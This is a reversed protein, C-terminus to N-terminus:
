HRRGKRSSCIVSGYLLADRLEREAHLWDDLDLGHNGGRALYLEYARRAVDSNTMTASLTILADPELNRLTVRKDAQRRNPEEM